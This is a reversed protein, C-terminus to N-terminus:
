LKGMKAPYWLSNVNFGLRIENMMTGKYKMKQIEESM